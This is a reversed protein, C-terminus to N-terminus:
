RERCAARGTQRHPDTKEYRHASAATAARASALMNDSLDLGLVSAAGASRAWRAFWGFGCGLDVVRRGAMAPLLARIAPWEPAGDLGHQSRPLRSYGDFFDDRDYINQAM